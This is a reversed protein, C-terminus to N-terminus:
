VISVGFARTTTVNRMRSLSDDNDNDDDDDDDDDNDRIVAFVSLTGINNISESSKIRRISCNYSESLRIAERFGSLGLSM